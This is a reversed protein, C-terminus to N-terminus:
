LNDIFTVYSLNCYCLEEHGEWLNTCIFQQSVQLLSRNSGINSSHLEASHCVMDKDEDTCEVVMSDSSGGDQEADVECYNECRAPVCSRLVRRSTSANSTIQQHPM